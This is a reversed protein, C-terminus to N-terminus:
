PPMHGFPIGLEKEFVIRGLIGKRFFAIEEMVEVRGVVLCM